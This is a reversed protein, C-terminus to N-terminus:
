GCVHPPARDVLGHGFLDPLDVTFTGDIIEVGAGPDVNEVTVGAPVGAVSDLDTDDTRAGVVTEKHAVHEDAGGVLLHLGVAGWVKGDVVGAGEGGVSVGEAHGRTGTDGDVKRRVLHDDESCFISALHLLADEGDHKIEHGDLVVNQGQVRGAILADVTIDSKEKTKGSSALSGQGSIGSTSEDPIVLVAPTLVTDEVDFTTAVGLYGL